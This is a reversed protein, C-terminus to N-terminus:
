DILVVKKKQRITLYPKQLRRKLIIDQTLILYGNKSFDALLDDVNGTKKIVDLNKSEIIKLALIAARRFKGRQELAIKRLEDLTGQLINPSYPFDCCQELASFLDLKFESIAM